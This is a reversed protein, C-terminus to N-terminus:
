SSGFRIPAGCAGNKAPLSLASVDANQLLRRYKFNDEYAIGHKMMIFDNMLKSSDYSTICRGDGMGLRTSM